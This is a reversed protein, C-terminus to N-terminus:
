HAASRGVIKELAAVCRDDFMKGASTKLCTLSEGISLAPRYPRASTMADFIDAVMIIRGALGIQDGHLGYPYGSGDLREHHQLIGPMIASLMKVQGLIAAGIVPHRNIVIREEPTLSGTKNLIAEPIGIKGLDHLLSSIRIENLGPKDVGLEQAILVSYDSVRNSHGQTGPDKADIAAVLARVADLFLEESSEYLEAVQLLASAQSTLIDLTQADAKQFAGGRKNLVTVGGFSKARDLGQSGAGSTTLPACVAGPTLYNLPSTQRAPPTGAAEGPRAAPAAGPQPAQFSVNYIAERTEPDVIFVSSREADLLKSAQETVMYLLQKRDLVGTMQSIAGLLGNLRRNEAEAKQIQERQVLEHALREALLQLLGLNGHTFNFLHIVGLNRQPTRVPLIILNEMREADPPNVARLWRPDGYLRGATITQAIASDPNLLQASSKLRLGLLTSSELDGRVAAVVAEGSEAEIAFYTASGAQATALMLDLLADLVHQASGLTSIANLRGLLSFSAEPEDRFPSETSIQVTKTFKEPLM